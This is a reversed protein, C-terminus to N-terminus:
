VDDNENDDYILEIEFTNNNIEKINIERLSGIIYNEDKPIQSAINKFKTLNEIRFGSYQKTILDVNKNSKEKGFGAKAYGLDQPITNLTKKYESIIDNLEKSLPFKKFQDSLEVFLGKKAEFLVNKYKPENTNKSLVILIKNLKRNSYNKTMLTNINRSQTSQPFFIKNRTSYGIIGIDNGIALEFSKEGTDSIKVYKANTVFDFIANMVKAKELVDKERHDSAYDLVNSIDEGNLCKEYYMHCKSAPNPQMKCGLLHWYNKEEIKIEYFDLNNADKKYALLYTKNALIDFQKISQQLIKMSNQSIM